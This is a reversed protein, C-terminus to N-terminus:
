QVHGRPEGGRQIFGRSQPVGRVARVEGSRRVSRWASASCRQSRGAAFPDAAREIPCSTRRQAHSGFGRRGGQRASNPRRAFALRLVILLDAALRRAGLELSARIDGVIRDRLVDYRGGPILLYSECLQDHRKTPTVGLIVENVGLGSLAICQSVSIMDATM